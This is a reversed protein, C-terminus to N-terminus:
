TSPDKRPPTAHLTIHKDNRRQHGDIDCLFSFGRDELWKRAVGVAEAPTPCHRIVMPNRGMIRLEVVVYENPYADQVTWDVRLKFPEITRM